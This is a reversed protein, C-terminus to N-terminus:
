NFAAASAPSPRLPATADLVDVQVIRKCIMKLLTGSKESALVVAFATMYDAFSEDTANITEVIGTVRALAEPSSCLVSAGHSELIRRSENKIREGNNM